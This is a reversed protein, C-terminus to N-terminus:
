LVKWYLVRDIYKNKDLYYDKMLGVKKFGCKKLVRESAINGKNTTAEITHIGLKKIKNLGIQTAKTAIGKKWFEKAVWYGISAHKDKNNIKYIDFFGAKKKNYYITFSYTIGRTAENKARILYKEAETISHMTLRDLYYKQFDKDQMSNYFFEADLITSQTLTVKM